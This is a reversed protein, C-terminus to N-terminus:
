APEGPAWPDRAGLLRENISFHKALILRVDEPLREPTGRRVFQQLYAENRRIMRSLAALSDGREDVLREITARVESSTREPPAPTM